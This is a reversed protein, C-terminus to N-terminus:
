GQIGALFGGIAAALQAPKEQMPMHGSGALEVYKGGPAAAALAAGLKPPTMLDDAGTVALLPARLERVRDRADYGAVARYDAETRAQSATSALAAARRRQDRPMEPAYALEAFVAPWKPWSALAEFIASSVPITAGSAVSVVGAVKDPWALAADLVVLGGMSHGILIAPPLCLAACTLGVADRLEEISRPDGGSRGHGPLDIAIVRRDRALRGIVSLWIASSAGAGHVLVLPVGRKGEGAEHVFMKVGHVDVIAM